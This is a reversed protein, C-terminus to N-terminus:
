EMLVAGAVEGKAHPRRRAHDLIRVADGGVSTPLVHNAAYGIFYLRTLWGLPEHIGKSALLLQWRWAMVGTSVLLIALAAVVYLPNSDGIQEFVKAPDLRLLLFALIGGSVALQVVIRAARPIPPLRLRRREGDPM